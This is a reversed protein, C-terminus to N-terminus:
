LQEPVARDYCISGAARANIASVKRSSRVGNVAFSSSRRPAIRQKFVVGLKTESHPERKVLLIGVGPLQDLPQVRYYASREGFAQQSCILRGILSDTNLSFTNRSEFCLEFSPVLRFNAIQEGHGIRQDLLANPYDAPVTPSVIDTVASQIM